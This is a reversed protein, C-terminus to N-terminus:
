PGFTTERARGSLEKTNEPTRLIASAGASGERQGRALKHPGARTDEPRPRQEAGPGGTHDRRQYGGRREGGPRESDAQGCGSPVIAKGPRANQGMGHPLANEDVGGRLYM